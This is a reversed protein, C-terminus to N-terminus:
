PLFLGWRPLYFCIGSGAKFGVGQRLLGCSPPFEYIRFKERLFPFDTGCSLVQAQSVLGWIMLSQFGTLSMIMLGLSSYHVPFSRKFSENVGPCLVSTATLFAGLSHTFIQKSIKLRKLAQWLPLPRNSNQGPTSASALPM